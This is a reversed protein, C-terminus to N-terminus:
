LGALTSSFMERDAGLVLLHSKQPNRMQDHVEEGVLMLVRKKGESYYGQPGSVLVNHDTVIVADLGCKLAARAIDKHTGTGDSYVTHMHLNVVLEHM